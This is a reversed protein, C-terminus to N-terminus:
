LHGKVTYTVAGPSTSACTKDVRIHIDSDDNYAGTGDENISCDGSANATCTYTGDTTFVTLRYCALNGTGTVDLTLVVENQCVGGTARIRYWDPASGSAADFGTIAPVHSRQDSPLSAAINRNSSGDTCPFSGVFAASGQTHNGTVGDTVECGNSVNNDVDYSEGACNFSCTGDNCAPSTNPAGAGPCPMNCAGCHDVTNAADGCAQLACGTPDPDDCTPKCTPVEAGCLGYRETVPDCTREGVCSGDANSRGCPLPMTVHDCYGGLADGCKPVNPVCLQRTTNGIAISTCQYDAPCGSPGSLSCDVHCANEDDNPGVLCVETFYGCDASSECPMCHAPSRPICYGDMSGPSIAECFFNDTPCDDPGTCRQVCVRDPLDLFAEECINSACEADDMCSSGLPLGDGMSGAGSGGVGTIVGGGSGDTDASEVGSACAAIALAAAALFILKM